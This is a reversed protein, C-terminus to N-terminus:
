VVADGGGGRWRAGEKGEGIVKGIVDRGGMWPRLVEPVAVTGAGEDWGNELLAALVRPVALATANVTYPFALKGSPTKSRTALRRTQYDTCLSASTLEGWGPDPASDHTTTTTTSSSSSSLKRRGRRSPFLTEIDRKRAASAGLDATPMELVRCPLHLSQLIATQIALAEDFVATASALDPSTWAFLEVKTFEHVRYLGKTDVGRAGAEARYCRSPGIVKLPLLSGPLTQNAKMAALPIEATGALSLEPKRKRNSSAQELTYIQQEGHQDRPRFGCAAGVHSYVISPPAVGRWGRALAVSLAYQILAQELLMAENTLYYWGWGSSTSAASFDLLDLEAGIDVHSKGPTESTVKDPEGDCNIYSVVRPTDGIPTENSTLNPLRLALDEMEATAETEQAEVAAVDDKLKRAEELIRAQTDEGQTADGPSNSKGLSQHLQKLRSRVERSGHQVAQRREFLEAIRFPSQRQNHYNRDIANQSHLQPNERVHKIDLIPKPAHSPRGEETPESTSTFSRRLRLNTSLYIVTQSAIGDAEM